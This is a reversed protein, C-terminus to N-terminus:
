DGSVASDGLAVRAAIRQSAIIALALMGMIIGLSIWTNLHYWHGVAMKIGVFILIGGLAHSLYHFREKASALLFYLARLGLIAFANSALVLYPEHSVALIAPVSDFAFVVDTVEVVVLAALLPTAHRKGKITKTFNHGDFEDTVPMFRRLLGLGATSTTQGEDDRHRIIKLGTFVLFLGFVILLWFFRSILAAGAFIFIARLVLAGFIGWFLVRHQFKLPIAMSSFIISWVFLNDVSLSKEIVYGSIYEGFAESGFRWAIFGSFALGCAVWFASERVAEASTPAHDDRHRILDVALMLVVVGILVGWSVANVDIDVFNERSGSAAAFMLHLIRVDWGARLMVEHEPDTWCREATWRCLSEALEDGVDLGVVREDRDSDQHWRVIDPHGDAALQCAALKALDRRRTSTQDANVQQRRVAHGFKKTSRNEGLDPAAGNGIRHDRGSNTTHQVVIWTKEGAYEFMRRCFATEDPQMTLQAIEGRVLEVDQGSTSCSRGVDDADV